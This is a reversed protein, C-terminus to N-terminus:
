GPDVYLYGGFAGEEGETPWLLVDGLHLVLNGAETRHAGRGRLKGTPDFIGKRVCEEIHSRSAEAQDFGIIESEKVVVWEKAAKDYQRVPKSMQRWHIELFDSQPGYLAILANKGHRNNADLGVIQGISDLYYCRISGTMDSSIGLCRVPGGRPFPPREHRSGGDGDAISPGPDGPEAFIPADVPNDLADLVPDEAASM